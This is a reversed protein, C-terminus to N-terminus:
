SGGNVVEALALMNGDILVAKLFSVGVKRAPKKAPREVYPNFDSPKAPSGKKPDSNVNVLMALVASTHHWRERCRGESM